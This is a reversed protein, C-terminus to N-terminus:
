KNKKWLSYYQFVSVVSMITGFYIIFDAIKINFLEFPLNYFFMLAIGLMMSYIKIQDSKIVSLAYGRKLFDRNYFEIIEDVIIYVVPVIAPIFGRCAFIILAINILIENAILDILKGRETVTNTKKAIHNDLFTTLLALLYFIGAVFFTSDIILGNINFKPFNLGLSYFPFLCIITIIITLLVRFVSLKNSANM